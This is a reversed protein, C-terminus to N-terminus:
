RTCTPHTARMSVGIPRGRGGSGDAAFGEPQQGADEDFAYNSAGISDGIKAKEVMDAHARPQPGAHGATTQQECWWMRM